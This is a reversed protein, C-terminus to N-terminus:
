YKGPTLAHTNPLSPLLSMSGTAHAAYLLLYLKSEQPQRPLFSIDRNHNTTQQERTLSSACMSVHTVALSVCTKSKM